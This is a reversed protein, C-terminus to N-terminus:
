CCFDIAEAFRFPTVMINRFANVRPATKMKASLRNTTEITVHKVWSASACGCNQHMSLAFGCTVIIEGTSKVPGM